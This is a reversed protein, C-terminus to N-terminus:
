WRSSTGVPPEVGCVPWVLTPRPGLNTFWIKVFPNASVIRLLDRAQRLAPTIYNGNSNAFELSYHHTSFIVLWLAASEVPAYHKELKRRISNALANRAAPINVYKYSDVSHHIIATHGEHSTPEAQVFGRQTLETLQIAVRQNGSQCLFDHDSQPLQTVLTLEPEEDIANIEEIFLDIVQREQVEKSESLQISERRVSGSKPFVLRTIPDTPKRPMQQGRCQTSAAIFKRCRTRRLYRPIPHPPELFEFTLGRSESEVLDALHSFTNRKQFGAFSALM